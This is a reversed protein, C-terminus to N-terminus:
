FIMLAHMLSTGLKLGAHPLRKEITIPIRQECGKMIMWGDDWYSQFVTSFSTLDCTMWEDIADSWELGDSTFVETSTIYWGGMSILKKPNHAHSPKQLTM